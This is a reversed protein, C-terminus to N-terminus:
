KTLTARVLDQAKQLQLDKPKQVRYHAAMLENLSDAFKQNVYPELDHRQAFLTVAENTKLGYYGSTEVDYGLDQLRYQLYLVDLGAINTSLARTLELPATREASLKPNEVVYNPTLGIGHVHNEKPTLYEAITVKMGGGAKLTLIQQVTGKGFTTVGVLPAVGYDQLAGALIESASASGGDVVVATPLNILRGSSKLSVKEKKGVEWVIPEDKPVFASAIQVAAELYGGGNQRLDLVLGKAGQAKLSDVADYFGKVVDDGFSSLQIYGVEADLMKSEVEPINIQDRLVSITLTRNESPREIKLSVVTGAEGRILTVAKDTSAGILSTGNVELIRDGSQLGAKAAPGGKIPSSIVVYNGAKELYAGIGSFNGNLSDMFGAFEAPDYYNTYPDGLADLGGKIAGKTFTAADAGDKHWGEVVDYVARIRGFLSETSDQAAAAGVGLSLTLVSIIATTVLWRKRM